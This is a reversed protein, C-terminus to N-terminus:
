AMLLTSGPSLEQCEAAQPADVYYELMRRRRNRMSRASQRSPLCSNTLDEFVQWWVEKEGIVSV